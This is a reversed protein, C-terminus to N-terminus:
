YELQVHDESMLCHLVRQQVEVTMMVVVVEEEDKQL